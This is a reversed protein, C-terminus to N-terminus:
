FKIIYNIVLYNTNNTAGSTMAANGDVGGTVLGVSGTLSKSTAGLTQGAATLSFSHGHGSGTTGSTVDNLTGTASARMLSGANSATSNERAVINHTHTGDSGGVTGSVSSSAHTHSIDVAATSGTGMGHYHAPVSHTHTLTRSAAAIGDSNGLSDSSGKGVPTRRVLDPVNFTTSGDGAGYTTSIAAFLAAYTTRNVASGDCILWGSPASGAAYQWITGTPITANVQSVTALDTGASGNAANTIKYGGMNLNATPTNTGDKALCNNIGTAFDNDQTDHRGAEIGIGLSADGTWGGTSNNGKTYTGGSWPM